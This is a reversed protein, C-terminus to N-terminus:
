AAAGHLLRRIEARARDVTLGDAVLMDASRSQSQLVGLLLHEAGVWDHGFAKAESTARDLVIRTESGYGMTSENSIIPRSFPTRLAHLLPDKEIHLARLVETVVGPGVEGAGDELLGLLVHDPTVESTLQREAEAFALRLARQCREAVRITDM